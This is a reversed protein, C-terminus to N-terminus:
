NIIRQFQLTKAFLFYKQWKGTYTDREILDADKHLITYRACFQFVISANKNIIVGVFSLSLSLLLSFNPLM